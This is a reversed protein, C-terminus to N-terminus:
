ASDCATPLFIDEGNQIYSRYSFRRVRQKFEEPDGEAQARTIQRVLLQALFWDAYGDLWESRVLSNDYLEEIRMLPRPAFASIVPYILDAHNTFWSRAYAYVPKHFMLRAEALVTSNAGAVGSCRMLLSKLDVGSPLIIVNKLEAALQDLGAVDGPHSRPHPKIVLQFDDPLCMRFHQILAQWNPVNLDWRNVRDLILQTPWLVFRNAVQPPLDRPEFRLWADRTKRALLRQEVACCRYTLRSLSSEWCFGLPDVHITEYHPFFGDESHVTDIGWSRCIATINAREVIFNGMIMLEPLADKEAILARLDSETVVKRQFLDEASKAYFHQLWCGRYPSTYAFSNKRIEM